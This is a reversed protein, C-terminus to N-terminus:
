MSGQWQLITRKIGQSRLREGCRGLYERLVQLVVLRSRTVLNMVQSRDTPRSVVGIFQSVKTETDTLQHKRVRVNRQIHRSLEKEREWKAM